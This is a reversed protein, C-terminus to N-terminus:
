GLGAQHYRAPTAAGTKVLANTADEAPAARGARGRPSAGKQKPGKQAQAAGKPAEVEDEVVRFTVM